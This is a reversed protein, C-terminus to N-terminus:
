LDDDKNNKRRSGGVITSILGIVLGLAFIGVLVWGVVAGSKLSSATWTVASNLATTTSKQIAGITLIILDVFWWIGFGGLTFLKLLGLGIQGLYFRDIGLGGLFYSLVLAVTLNKSPM